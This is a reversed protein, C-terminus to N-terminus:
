FIHPPKTKQFSNRSSGLRMLHQVGGRFLSISRENVSSSSPDTGVYDMDLGLLRGITQHTRFDDLVALASVTVKTATVASQDQAELPEESM